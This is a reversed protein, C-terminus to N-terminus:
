GVVPGGLINRRHGLDLLDLAFDGGERSRFEGLEAAPEGVKVGGAPVLLEFRVDRGRSQADFGDALDRAVASLDVYQPELPKNTIRYLALMTDIQDAMRRGNRIITDVFQYFTPTFGLELLSLDQDGFRLTKREAHTNGNEDTTEVYGAMFQALRMSTVDLAMQAEAIALGLNRVLDPFPVNLLEQGIQPM